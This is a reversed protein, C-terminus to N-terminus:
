TPLSLPPKARKTRFQYDELAVAFEAPVSRIVRCYVVLQLPTIGHLLSPWELTVRLRSGVTISPQNSAILLGCSSMNITRGVGVLSPGESLTRYKVGLRLPYRVKSRREILPSSETGLLHIRKKVDPDM